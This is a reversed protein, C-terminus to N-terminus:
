TRELVATLTYRLRHQYHSGLQVRCLLSYRMWLLLFGLRTVEQMDMVLDSELGSAGYAM